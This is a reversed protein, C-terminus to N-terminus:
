KDSWVAFENGSPERFHFRRGGPFDFTPKVILGGAEVIEAQTQELENSYFVLLAAGNSSDSVMPARYFGGELVTEKFAMYDPGYDTFEWNFVIEFFAKTKELDSAPYEIYNIAKHPLM